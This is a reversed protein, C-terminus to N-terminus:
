IIQKWSRNDLLKSVTWHRVCYAKALLNKSFAGTAFLARIERVALPSLKAHTARHGGNCTGHRRRGDYNAAKTGWVLNDLRADFSNGNLHRGEMGAPCPGRFTQLVIQHVQASRRLGDARLIVLPYPAGAPNMQRFESGVMWGGRGGGVRRVRSTWVSGDSGVVYGPFRRDLYVPERYEVGPAGQPVEVIRGVISDSMSRAGLVSHHEAAPPRCGAPRTM